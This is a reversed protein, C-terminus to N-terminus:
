SIMIWSVLRRMPISGWTSSTRSNMVPFVISRHDVVHRLQPWILRCAVLLLSPSFPGKEGCSHGHAILLLPSCPRRSAMTGDETSWGSRCFKQRGFVGPRTETKLRPRCLSAEEMLAHVFADLNLKPFGLSVACENVNKM